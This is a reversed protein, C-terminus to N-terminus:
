KDKKKKKKEHTHPQLLASLEEGMAKLVISTQTPISRLSTIGAMTDSVYMSPFLAWHPSSLCAQLYVTLEEPIPWSTHHHSPSGLSVSCLGRHGWFNPVKMWEACQWGYM